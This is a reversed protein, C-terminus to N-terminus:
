GLNGWTYFLLSNIIYSMHGLDRSREIKSKDIKGILDTCRACLAAWPHSMFLPPKARLPLPSPNPPVQPFAFKMALYSKGLDASKWSAESTYNWHHHSSTPGARGGGFFAAILINM